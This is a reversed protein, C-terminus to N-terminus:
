KSSEFSLAFSGNALAAPSGFGSLPMATAFYLPEGLVRGEPQRVYPVIREEPQKTCAGLGGLALSAGMLKLFHRRDLGAVIGAAQRPFEYHLFELFEPTEVLEDLSRWFTRGSTGALHTRITSWDRM